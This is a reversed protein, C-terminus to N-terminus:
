PVVVLKPRVSQDDVKPRRAHRKRLGRLIRDITNGIRTAAEHDLRLTPRMSLEAAKILLQQDAVSMNSWGGFDAALDIARAQVAARSRDRGGRPNGSQGPKFQWPRLQPVQEAM